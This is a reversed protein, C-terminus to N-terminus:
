IIGDIRATRIRSDLDDIFKHIPRAGNRSQPSDTARAQATVNAGVLDRSHETSHAQSDKGSRSANQGPAFCSLLLNAAFQQGVDPSSKRQLM